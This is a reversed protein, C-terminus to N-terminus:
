KNDHKIIVACDYNAVSTMCSKASEIDEHFIVGQKKYNHSACCWYAHKIPGGEFPRVDIKPLFIKAQDNTMKLDGIGIVNNPPFGYNTIYEQRKVNDRIAAITEAKFATKDGTYEYIVYKPLIINRGTNVLFKDTIEEIKM